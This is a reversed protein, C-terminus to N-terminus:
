HELILQTHTFADKSAQPQRSPLPGRAFNTQGGRPESYTERHTVTPVQPSWSSGRGGDRRAYTGVSCFLPVFFPNLEGQQCVLTLNGIYVCNSLYM